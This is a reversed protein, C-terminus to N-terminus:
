AGSKRYISGMEVWGKWLPQASDKTSHRCCADALIVAIVQRLLSISLELLQLQFNEAGM